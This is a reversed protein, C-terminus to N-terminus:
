SSYPEQIHLPASSSIIGVGIVVVCVDDIDVVLGKDDKVKMMMALMM